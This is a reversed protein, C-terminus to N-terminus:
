DEDNHDWAGVVEGCASCTFGSPYADSGEGVHSLRIKSARRPDVTAYDPNDMACGKCIAGDDLSYGVTIDGHGEEFHDNRSM